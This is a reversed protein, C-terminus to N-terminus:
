RDWILWEMMWVCIRVCVRLGSMVDWKVIAKGSMWGIYWGGRRRKRELRDKECSRCHGSCVRIFWNRSISVCLRRVLLYIRIFYLFIPLGQILRSAVHISRVRIPLRFTTWPEQGRGEKDMRKWRTTRIVRTFICAYVCVRSPCCTRWTHASFQIRRPDRPGAETMECDQWPNVRYLTMYLSNVMSSLRPSQFNHSYAGRVNRGDNPKKGQLTNRRRIKKKTKKKDCIRLIRMIREDCFDHFFIPIFHLLYFSNKSQM